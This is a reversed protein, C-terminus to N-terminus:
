YANGAVANLFGRPIPWTGFVQRDDRRFNGAVLVGSLDSPDPTKHQSALLDRLTKTTSELQAVLASASPSDKCTVHIGLQLQHDRDAGISFVIQDATQLAPLYAKAAAPLSDMAHLQAAPILAWAPEEPTSLSLKAHHDTIQYAAFDDPSVAMALVNPRLLYFSIRRNPQSGTLVCYDRHCSGGQGAAYQELNKWHFRGRVAFYTKGDQFSAAVADMDRQYDFKTDNVFQRYDADEAAKSGALMGLIGSRRLTDVDIYVVSANATPLLAVLEAPTKPGRNRLWYVGAACVAVGLLILSSRLRGTV